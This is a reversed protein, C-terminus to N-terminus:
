KRAKGAKKAPAKKATSKVATAKKAASKKAPQAHDTAAKPEGVQDSGTSTPAGDGQTPPVTPAPAAQPARPGLAQEPGIQRQTAVNSSPAPSGPPIPRNHEDLSAAVGASAEQAGEATVRKQPPALGALPKTQVGGDGGVLSLEAVVFQGRPLQDAISGAISLVIGGTAKVIGDQADDGVATLAVERDGTSVGGLTNSASILFKVKM